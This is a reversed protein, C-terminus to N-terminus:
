VLCLSLNISLLSLKLLLLHTRRAIMDALNNAYRSCNKFKINGMTSTFMVIDKVMNSILNPAKIIGM